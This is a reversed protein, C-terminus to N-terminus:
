SQLPHGSHSTNCPLSLANLIRGEELLGEEYMECLSVNVHIQEKTHESSRRQHDSSTCNM